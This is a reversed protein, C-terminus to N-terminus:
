ETGPERSLIGSPGRVEASAVRSGEPWDNFVETLWRGFRGPPGPEPADAVLDHLAAWIRETLSAVADSTARGTVPIARGIRVRLPRRMGLWSTGNIAIPVIPVGSRLAFYAAGAQVELLEREGVHIRGEGAIALVGGVQFVAEVRRAVDLLDSKAPKYPVATGTWYMARNRPGHRLDEEKPGFFYLRPRLPLTAYLLFPDLWSLHNFCYLAPGAPLNERGEVRVRFLLHIAAGVVFRSAYYRVTRSWRPVDTRPLRDDPKMSM